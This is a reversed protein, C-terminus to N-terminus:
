IAVRSYYAVKKYIYDLELLKSYLDRLRNANSKNHGISDLVIDRKVLQSGNPINGNDWLLSILEIEKDDFLSYNITDTNYRETNGNLEEDTNYQKTDVVKSLNVFGGRNSSQNNSEGNTIAVPVRQMASLAKYNKALKIDYHLEEIAVDIISKEHTKEQQIRTSEKLKNLKENHLLEWRNRLEQSVDETLERMKYRFQNILTSVAFYNLLVSFGFFVYFFLDKYGNITNKANHELSKYDNTSVTNSVKISSQEPPSQRFKEKCQTNKTRYRRIQWSDDCSKYHERKAQNYSALRNNYITNAEAGSKAKDDLLKYEKSNTVIGEILLREIKDSSQYAGFLDLSIFLTTIVASVLLAFYSIKTEEHIEKTLKSSLFDALSETRHNEIFLIVAGIFGLTGYIINENTTITSLFLYMGYLTIGLSIFIPFYSSIGRNVEIESISNDQNLQQIVSYDNDLPNKTIM